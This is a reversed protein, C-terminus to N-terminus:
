TGLPNVANIPNDGEFKYYNLGDGYGLDAQVWKALEPAFARHHQFLAADKPDFAMGQFLPGGASEDGADTEPLPDPTQGYANYTFPGFM